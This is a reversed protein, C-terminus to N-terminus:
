DISIAAPWTSREKWALKVEVYQRCMAKLWPRSDGELFCDLFVRGEPETPLGFARQLDQGIAHDNDGYGLSDRLYSPLEAGMYSFGKLPGPPLPPVGLAKGTRKYTDDAADYDLFGAAVLLNFHWIMAEADQQSEEIDCWAFAENRDGIQECLRQLFANLSEAPSRTECVRRQIPDWKWNYCAEKWARSNEFDRRLVQFLIALGRVQMGSGSAKVVDRLNSTPQADPTHPVTFSELAIVARDYVRTLSGLREVFAGIKPLGDADLKEPEPDDKLEFCHGPLPTLDLDWNADAFLSHFFICDRKGQAITFPLGPDSGTLPKPDSRMRDCWKRLNAWEVPLVFLSMRALDNTDDSAYRLVRVRYDELAKRLASEFDHQTRAAIWAWCIKIRRLDTPGMIELNDGLIAALEGAEHAALLAMRPDAESSAYVSEWLRPGATHLGIGIPKGLARSIAAFPKIHSLGTPIDRRSEKTNFNLPTSTDKAFRVDGVILDPLSQPDFCLWYQVALQWRTIAVYLTDQALIDHARFQMRAIGAFPREVNHAVADPDSPMTSLTEDDIRLVVMTRPNM